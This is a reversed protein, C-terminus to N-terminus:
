LHNGDVLSIITNLGLGLAVGHHAGDEQGGAPLEVLRLQGAPCLDGVQSTMDLVAGPQVDLVTGQDGEHRGELQVVHPLAVVHVEGALHIGVGTWSWDAPYVIHPEFEQLSILIEAGDFM